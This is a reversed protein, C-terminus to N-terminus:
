VEKSQNSAITITAGLASYLYTMCEGIGSSGGTILVHKGNFEISKNNRVLHYLLYAVAVVILVQILLALM